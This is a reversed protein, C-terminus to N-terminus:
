FLAAPCGLLPRPPEKKSPLAPAKEKGILFFMFITGLYAGFIGCLVM